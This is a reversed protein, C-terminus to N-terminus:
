VSGYSFACFGLYAFVFAETTHGLLEFSLSTGHQAAVSCNYWTYHAMTIACALITIVGSLHVIEGVIYSVYAIFLIVSTEFVPEHALAKCKKMVWSSVFGFVAGLIVSVFLNKCFNGAFSFVLGATV